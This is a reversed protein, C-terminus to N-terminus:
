QKLWDLVSVTPRDQEIPSQAKKMIVQIWEPALLIDHFLYSPNEQRLLSLIHKEQSATVKDKGIYRLAQIVLSSWKGKAMLMKPVTNKLILISEGVVIRRSTGNTYYITSIPVHEKLGLAYLASAESLMIKTRDRRAIAKAVAHVDPLKQSISRGKGPHCYIGPSIRVITKGNVLRELAKSIAKLNGLHGFDQIFYVKNPIM